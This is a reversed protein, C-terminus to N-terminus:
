TASAGKSRACRSRRRPAMWARSTPARWASSKSTGRRWTSTCTSCRCAVALTPTSRVAGRRLCRPRRRERQGDDAARRADAVRRLLRRPPLHRRPLRRHARAGGEGGGDRGLWGKAPARRRGFRSITTACSPCGTRRDTPARREDDARLDAAPGPPVLRRLPTENACLVLEAALPKQGAATHRSVARRTSCAGDAAAASLLTRGVRVRATCLCTSRRTSGNSRRGRKWFNVLGPTRATPVALLASAPTGACRKAHPAVVYVGRLIQARMCLRRRAARARRQVAAGEPVGCARPPRRRLPAVVAGCAARVHAVGPLLAELGVVGQAQRRLLAAHANARRRLVRSLQENM